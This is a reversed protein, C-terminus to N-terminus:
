EGEPEEPPTLLPEFRSPVLGEGHLDKYLMAVGHAELQKVYNDKYDNQRMMLDLFGEMAKRTILKEDGFSVTPVRAYDNLAAVYGAEVQPRLAEIEPLLTEDDQAILDDLKKQLDDTVKETSVARLYAIQIIERPAVKIIPLGTPPITYDPIKSAAIEYDSMILKLPQWLDKGAHGWCNFLRVQGAYKKSLKVFRVIKYEGELKAWQGSLRLAECQYFKARSAFSDEMTELGKYNLYVKAMAEAAQEYQQRVYLDWAVSWDEPERWNIEKIQGHPVPEAKLGNEFPSCYVFRDDSKVVYTAFESDDARVVNAHITKAEVAALGAAIISLTWATKNM